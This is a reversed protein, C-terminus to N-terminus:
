YQLANTMLKVGDGVWFDSRIDASPPYFNLSVMNRGGVKGTVVLPIGSGWTAVVVGGNIAMGNGRFASTATLTTVGTLLPSMPDLLQIPGTDTPSEYSGTQLLHYNDAEWRGLIPLVSNSFDALVVRGGADWYDALVDGMASYDQFSADPIIMASEYEQLEALTPTRAGGDFLDVRTFLGTAMLKAQVDAIYGSAHVLVVGQPLACKGSFCLMGPDCVTGCAGCNKKDTLTNVECGTATVKDCDAFNKNCSTLVCKNAACDFAANALPPCVNGCTGCNNKDDPLHVECGNAIAKDCDNYDTNCRAIGCNSDACGPTGNAVTACKMNCAGCNNVNTATDIECSNIPGAKCTFNTGTCVTSLCSGGGCVVNATGPASCQNGCNGCNALDSAGNTECGDSIDGNCDLYAAQCALKCVGQVCAAAANNGGPCVNGCAGCNNVDRFTDVECGDSASTNCDRYRTGCSSVGCVGAVCSAEGNAPTPCKNGCAGCNNIDTASDTECGDAPGNKCDRLSGTCMTSQCASTGTTVALDCTPTSPQCAAFLLACLALGVSCNLFRM